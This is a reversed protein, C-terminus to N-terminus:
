NSAAKISIKAGSTTMFESFVEFGYENHNIIMGSLSLGAAAIKKVSKNNYNPFLGCLSIFIARTFSISFSYHAVCLRLSVQYSKIHM